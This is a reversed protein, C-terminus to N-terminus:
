ESQNKLRELILNAEKKIAANQAHNSLKELLPIAMSNKKQISYIQALYFQTPEYFESQPYNDIVTKFHKESKQLYNKNSQYNQGYFFGFNLHLQPLASEDKLDFASAKDLLADGEEINSPNIPALAMEACVKTFFKSQNSPDLVSIKNVLTQGETFNGRKIYIMALSIYAKLNEPNKQIKARLNKVESEEELTKRMSAAFQDPRSPEITRIFDGEPSLIAITPLSMSTSYNGYPDKQIYSSYKRRLEENEPHKKDEPNVKLVM